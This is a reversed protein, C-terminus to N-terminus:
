NDEVDKEKSFTKPFHKKLAQQKIEVFDENDKEHLDEAVENVVKDISDIFHEFLEEDSHNNGDM